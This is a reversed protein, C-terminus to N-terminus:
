KLKRAERDILMRIYESMSKMNKEALIDLYDKELPTLRLQVKITKLPPKTM